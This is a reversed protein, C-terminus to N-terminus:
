SKRMGFVVLAVGGALMVGGFITGRTSRGTEADAVASGAAHASKPKKDSTGPWILTTTGLVALVIGIAVLPTRIM